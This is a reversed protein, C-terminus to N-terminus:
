VTEDDGDTLQEKKRVIYEEASLAEPEYPIVANLVVSLIAGVTYGTTLVILAGERLLKLTDSTTSIPIFFKFADPVIIVGLGLSLSISLIFRDRRDWTLGALIRAGSVAVSAFLFTTIGGLAADPLAVFVGGLKGIVGFLILWASAWLGASRNATRTMAIVGNNQSFTTTPSSTLLAAILSNVGDALLGGQVRSGFEPGDTPLRSVECTATIDGITEVTSVAHGILVPVLVPAYFGLKFRKVLPFTIAPAQRILDADFYGLSASLTIGALFGIMVQTNRLFPSGFIEVIIIITFVFLGLGIWRADGWPYHRNGPGTINPCDRFFSLSEPSEGSLDQVQRFIRCPGAGGAWYSLGVGVLSSGILFVTTGTVIPPFIKRLLRPPIFSLGIELLSGVMVTGLWLGYADPCPQNDSPCFGSERLASFMAQAIPLFTFSIGSMSVLGTGIWYGRFLKIRVIQIISMLGSITLASSILYAQVDPPLNLNSPGGGALIRPVTIIGVVMALAHQFGM